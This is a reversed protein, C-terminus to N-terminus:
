WPVKWIFCNFNGTTLYFNASTNNTKFITTQNTSITTLKQSHAARHQLQFIFCLSTKLIKAEMVSKQDSFDSIEAVIEELHTVRFPEM